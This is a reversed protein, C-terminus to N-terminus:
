CSAMTDTGTKQQKETESFNCLFYERFQVFHFDFNRNVQFSSPTWLLSPPSGPPPRVKPHRPGGRAAGGPPTPGQDVGSMARRGIFERRRSFGLPVFVKGRFM